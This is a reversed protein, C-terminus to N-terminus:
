LKGTARLVLIGFLMITANYASHLAISAWLSRTMSFVKALLLGLIATPIMVLPQLHIVGFLVSSVVIAWGEGWSDRLGSFVVGRFLIEEAVPAIVALLLFVVILGMPSKVSASLLKANTDPVKLKLAYTTFSYAINVSFGIWVGATVLGVVPWLKARRLGVAPVLKAGKLKVGILAAALLVAYTVLSLVLLVAWVGATRESAPLGAIASKAFRGVSPVNAVMSIAWNLFIALFAFGLAARWGWTVSTLPVGPWGGMRVPAPGSDPPTPELPPPPPLLVGDSM